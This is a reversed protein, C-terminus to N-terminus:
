KSYQTQNELTYVMQGLPDPHYTNYIYEGVSRGFDNLVQTTSILTAGGAYTGIGVGVAVYVPNGASITLTENHNLIHM